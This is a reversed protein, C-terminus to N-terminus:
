LFKEDNQWIWYSKETFKREGNKLRILANDLNKRRVFDAKPKENV